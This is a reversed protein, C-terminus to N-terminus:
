AGSCVPIVAVLVPHFLPFFRCTRYLWQGFLYSGVSLTIGFLPSALWESTISM